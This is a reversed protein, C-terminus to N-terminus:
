NQHQGGVGHKYTNGAKVCLSIAQSTNCYDYVLEKPKGLQHALAVADDRLHSIGLLLIAVRNRHTRGTTRDTLLSRGTTYGLRSPILDALAADIDHLRDIVAREAQSTAEAM